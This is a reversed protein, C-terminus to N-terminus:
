AATALNAELIRERQHLIWCLLLFILGSSVTIVASPFRRDGIDRLMVVSIVPEDTDVVPIPPAQGPEATQEIVKQVQVIAHRKPHMLTLASVVQQEIRDWRSPDDPLGKEGGVQFATLVKYDDVAEIGFNCTSCAPLNAAVTAEAEGRAPNSPDLFEWGGSAERVQEDLAAFAAPDDEFLKTVGEYDIHGDVTPLATLDLETVRDTVAQATDGANYELVQWSPAAGLMGIGYIWWFVGMIMMWGFFGTAALLFGLRNGTNTALILYISGMLVVVGVGVSLIGRITPDYGIGALLNLLQM